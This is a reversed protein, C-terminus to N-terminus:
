VGDMPTVLIGISKPGAHSGIVPGVFSTVSEEVEYLENLKTLWEESESSLTGYFVAVSVKKGKPIKETLLEFIRRYAKKKGRVKEVAFVEGEDDLSIIPKINLLSGLLAAAKGIRGGKQLYELTDLYALLVQKERTEEVIQLCEDLSKGEKAARAARVVLNGIAYTATKSDVVEIRVKEHDLREKAMVASQYTGSLASSLHISLIETYGEEVAQRYAQEFDVPSPQSTTPFIESVVLKRYFEEATISEGDTFTEDGFHVKLPVVTINLDQVLEKPIDSTSDTIVKVKSM